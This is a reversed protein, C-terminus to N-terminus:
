VLFEALIAYAFFLLPINGKLSKLRELAGALEPHSETGTEGFM